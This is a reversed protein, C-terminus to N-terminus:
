SRRRGRPAARPPARSAPTARRAQRGRPRARQSSQHATGRRRRRERLAAAGALSASAGTASRARCAGATRSSRGAGGRRRGAAVAWRPTTAATRRPAASMPWLEPEVATGAGGAGTAASLAGTPDSDEAQYQTPPVPWDPPADSAVSSRTLRPAAATLPESTTMESLPVVAVTGMETGAREWTVSVGETASDPEQNAAVTSRSPPPTVTLWDTFPASPQASDGHTLVVDGWQYKADPDVPAPLESSRDSKLGVVVVATTSREKTVLTCPRVWGCGKWPM